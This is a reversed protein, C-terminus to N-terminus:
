NTIFITYKLESIKSSKLRQKITSLKEIAMKDIEQELGKVKGQLAFIHADLVLKRLAWIKTEVETKGTGLRDQETDAVGITTM